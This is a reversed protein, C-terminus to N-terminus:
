RVILLRFLPSFNYLEPNIGYPLHRCTCLVAENTLKQKSMYPENWCDNPIIGKYKLSADNIVHLINSINKKTCEKIM